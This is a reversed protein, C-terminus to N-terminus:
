IITIPKNYPGYEAEGRSAVELLKGISLGINPMESLYLAM